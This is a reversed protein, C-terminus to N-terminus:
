IRVIKGNGEKGIDNFHLIIAIKHGEKVLAPSLKSLVNYLVSPSMVEPDGFNNELKALGLLLDYNLRHNYCMEHLLTRRDGPRSM